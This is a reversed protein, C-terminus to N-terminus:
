VAELRIGGVSTLPGDTVVGKLLACSQVRLPKGELWGAFIDMVRESGIKAAALVLLEAFEEVSPFRPSALGGALLYLGNGILGSDRSKYHALLPDLESVLNYLAAEDVVVANKGPSLRHEPMKRAYFNSLVSSKFTHGYVNRFTTQEVAEELREKLSDIATNKM